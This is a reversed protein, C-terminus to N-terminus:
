RPFLSVDNHVVEFKTVQLQEVKGQRHFLYYVVYLQDNLETRAEYVMFRATRSIIIVYIGKQQAHSTPTPLQWTETTVTDELWSIKEGLGKGQDLKILTQGDGAFAYVAKEDPTYRNDVTTLPLQKQIGFEPHIQGSPCYFLGDWGATLPLCSGIFCPEQARFCHLRRAWPRRSRLDHFDPHEEIVWISTIFRGPTFFGDYLIALYTCDRSLVANILFPEELDPLLGRVPQLRRGTAREQVWM